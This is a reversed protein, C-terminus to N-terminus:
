IYCTNQDANEVAAELHKHQSPPNNNNPNYNAPFQQNSMRQQGNGVYRAPVQASLDVGSASFTAQQGQNGHYPPNAQGIVFQGDRNGNGFQAERDDDGKNANMLLQSLSPASSGGSSSGQMGSLGQANTNSTTFQGFPRTDTGLQAPSFQSAVVSPQQSQSQGNSPSSWQNNNYNNYPQQNNPYNSVSPNYGQNQNQQNNQYNSPNSNQNTPQQSSPIYNAPRHQYEQNNNPNTNFNPNNNFLEQQFQNANNRITQYADSTFNAVQQPVNQLSIWKSEVQEGVKQMTPNNGVAQGLQNVGQNIFSGIAGGVSGNGGRGGMQQQQNQMQYFAEFDRQNQQTSYSQAFSRWEPVFLYFCNRRVINLYTEDRIYDKEIGYEPLCFDYCETCKM